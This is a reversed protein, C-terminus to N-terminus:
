KLDGTLWRLTNLLMQWNARDTRSISNANFMAAEGLLVVKGKGYEFAVGQTRGAASTNRYQKTVPDWNRDLATSPLNLLVKSNSPGVLSGGTITTVSDVGKMIPHKGILGQSRTFLITQAVSTDYTADRSLRDYTTVNPYDVGLAATIPSGAKPNPAHDLILLLSGGNKIWTAIANAEDDTYAAQAAAKSWRFPEGARASRQMLTDYNEIFPNCIIVVDNGALSETTFKGIHSSVKLGAKNLTNALVAYTGQINHLNHHGEDIVIRKSSTSKRFSSVPIYKKSLSSYIKDMSENWRKEQHLSKLTKSNLIEHVQEFTLNTSDGIIKLQRYASDLNKHEVWAVAADYRESVTPKGKSNFKNWAMRFIKDRMLNWRMDNHIPSYDKHAIFYIYWQLSLDSSESLKDLYYFASDLNNILAQSWAARHWDIFTPNAGRRNVATSFHIAANKYDKARYSSFGKSVIAEYEDSNNQGFTVCCTLLCLLGILNKKM